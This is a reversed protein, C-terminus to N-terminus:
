IEYDHEGEACKSDIRYNEQYFKHRNKKHIARKNIPVNKNFKKLAHYSHNSAGM